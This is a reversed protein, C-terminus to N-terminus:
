QGVARIRQNVQDGIYLIHGANGLAVGAPLNLEASTAPGGDGSYGETGDGAVTSIIGTSVTVKRIRNNCYDAIYIDGGSNVALDGPECLEASTAPGGDGSYGTTGNGAVTSMKGTSATVKRIRANSFDGIYMNGASDVTVGTPYNIEASTAPGGDGSYGAIGDGAVTSIIGTSATVKRIRSNHSDAIYINGAGDVAVDYPYYLEASTAAGGDGSYGATGDGAVTSIIGTSATVKRIRNNAVDAIYINGAGDVAM